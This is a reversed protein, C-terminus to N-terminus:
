NLPVRLRVVHFKVTGLICKLCFNQAVIPPSPGQGRNVGCQMSRYRAFTEKSLIKNVLEMVLNNWRGSLNM